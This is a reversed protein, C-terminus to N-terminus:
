CSRMAAGTEAEEHQWAHTVAVRHHPRPATNTRLSKGREVRPLVYRCVVLSCLVGYVGIGCDWRNYTDVCGYVCRFWTDLVDEDQTVTVDPGFKRQAQALAEDETRAVVFDNTGDVYFVPVRHGWWLQRSICWDKLNEM